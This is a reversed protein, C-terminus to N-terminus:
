NNSFNNSFEAVVTTGLPEGAPDELDLIELTAHFGQHRLVELREMNMKMGKSEYAHKFIKQNKLESSKKRGVGNDEVRCSFIDESIKHFSIELKREGKKHMLGHWLANEVIPQLFMSPMLIDDSEIGPDIYVSYQFSHEFRMLELELYLTLIEVEEDITILLKGSNNLVLRFLKAFKNLYASAENYKKMVICEQISNLCNFVFHPNMQARLAKLQSEAFLTNVEMLKLASERALMGAQADAIKFSSISAITSLTKLHDETFFNKQPHESDIVGIVRQEHLIPVALESLRETDDRIYREDKTTDPILLAKGEKAVTGVIGSGIPIEIPNIIENGRPNKPGFAAKQVLVQREADVLYVVCDDFGLQSICNRAIDWCIENVSNESYVSNAFYDIIQDVKKKERRRQYMRYVQYLLLVAASICLIYFWTTKWFPPHIVVVFHRDGEHFVGNQDSNKVRFTYEGPPVNTFSASLNRGSNVWDRNFGELIYSYQLSPFVLHRPSSFGITFFNQNYKLQVDKTAPSFPFEKEFVSIGSILPLTFEHQQDLRTQDIILLRDKLSAIIYQSDLLLSPWDDGLSYNLFYNVKSVYSAGPKFYHISEPTGLWIRHDPDISVSSTYNSMLGQQTTIHNLVNGQLDLEFLGDGWSTAWVHHDADEVLNNIASAEIAPDNTIKEFRHTAYDYVRLGKGGYGVWIRGKSDELFAMCNAPGIDGQDPNNGDFRTTIGSAPDCSYIYRGWTSFWIHERSDKMMVSVSHHGIEEAYPPFSLPRFTKSDPNFIFIGRATGVWWEHDVQLTFFTRSLGNESPFPKYLKFDQKKRDYLILGGNTTILIRGDEMWSLSNVEAYEFPIDVIKNIVNSGFLRAAGAFTAFWLDGQKDEIVDTLFASQLGYADIIKGPLLSEGGAPDLVLCKGTWTSFWVRDKSDVFTRRGPLPGYKEALYNYSQVTQDEVNYHALMDQEDSWWIDGTFPHIAITYIYKDRFVPLHQPNAKLTNYSGTTYDIFCLGHNSSLWIGHRVTDLVVLGTFFYEDDLQRLSEFLHAAQYITDHNYIFLGKPTIFWAKHQPDSVLGVVELNKISDPLGHQYHLEDFRRDYISYRVLGKRTGILLVGPHVEAMDNISESHNLPYNNHSWNFIKFTSGDFRNLGNYTGLWLYGDSDMIVSTVSNSSLGDKTQLM